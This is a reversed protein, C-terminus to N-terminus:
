REMGAAPKIVAMIPMTKPMGDPLSFPNYRVMAVSAPCIMMSYTRIWHSLRVLPVMPIVNGAGLIKPQVIAPSLVKKKKIKAHITAM